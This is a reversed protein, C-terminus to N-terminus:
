LIYEKLFDFYIFEEICIGCKFQIWMKERLDLCNKLVFGLLEECCGFGYIDVLDFVNIGVFFVIEVFEEVERVFKDKIRM